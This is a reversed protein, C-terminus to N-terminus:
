QMGADSCVRDLEDRTYIRDNLMALMGCLAKKSATSLGTKCLLNGHYHNGEVPRREYSFDFAMATTLGRMHDIESRPIRCAGFRFQRRGDDKAQSAILLLSGEDDDWNISCEEIGRNDFEKFEFANGGLSGDSQITPQTFGRYLSDPFKDKAQTGTCDNTM